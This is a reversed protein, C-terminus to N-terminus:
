LTFHLLSTSQGDLLFASTLFLPLLIDLHILECGLLNWM